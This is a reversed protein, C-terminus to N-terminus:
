VCTRPSIVYCLDKWFYGKCVAFSGESLKIVLHLSLHFSIYLIISLFYNKLIKFLKIESIQHIHQSVEGHPRTLM